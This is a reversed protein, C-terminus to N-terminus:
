SGKRFITTYLPFVFIRNRQCLRKSVNYHMFVMCCVTGASFALEAALAVEGAGSGPELKSTRERM